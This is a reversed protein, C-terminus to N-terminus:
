QWDSTNSLTVTNDPNLTGTSISGPVLVGNVWKAGTVVNNTTLVRNADAVNSSFWEAIEGGLTEDRGTIASITADIGQSPLGLPSAKLANIWGGKEKVWAWLKVALFGVVAVVILLMITQLAAIYKM